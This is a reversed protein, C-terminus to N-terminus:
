TQDFRPLCIEPAALRAPSRHLRNREPRHPPASGPRHAADNQLLVNLRALYTNFEPRRPAYGPHRWSLGPKFTVKTDDYWVAHPILRNIGKTHQEMAVTYIEDWSLDGM